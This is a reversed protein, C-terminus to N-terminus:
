KGGPVAESGSAQATSPSAESAKLAKIQALAEAKREQAQKSAEELTQRHSAMDAYAVHQTARGLLLQRKDFLQCYLTGNQLASEKELKEPTIHKLSQAAKFSLLDIEANTFLKISKAIETWQINHKYLHYRVASNSTNLLKAAQDQTLNPHNTKLAVIDDITLGKHYPVDEGNINVKTNFQSLDSQTAQAEM